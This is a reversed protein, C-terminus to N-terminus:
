CSLSSIILNPSFETMTCAVYALVLLVPYPLVYEEYAKLIDVQPLEFSINNLSASLGNKNPGGCTGNCDLLNVSVTIFLSTNVNQPVKIPYDSHVLSKLMRMFNEAVDRHDYNPLTTIPVPFLSPGDQGNYQLLATAKSREVPSNTDAFPYAAMQFYRSLQNATLLVDMTQGPTIMIYEVDIPEVYAADVGVVTLNHNAIGFFLEENMAANIIRLLYTKGIDVSLRYISDSSCDYENGPQGNITLADALAPFSGNALAHEIMEMVDVKYWTGLVIVEDADPKIHLPYNTGTPPSIIIAGHVTARTWDSHAHWWLTGEEDSFIVEYTFNTGALIPCQTINEPGDYWPNGPQKVGHWIRGSQPYDRVSHGRKSCPDGARSPAM